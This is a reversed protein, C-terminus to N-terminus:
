ILHKAKNYGDRLQGASVTNIIYRNLNALFVRPKKLKKKEGHHSRGQFMDPIRNHGVFFVRKQIV